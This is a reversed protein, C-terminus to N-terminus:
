GLGGMISAIMAMMADYGMMSNQSDLQAAGLGLQGETGYSGLNFENEALGAQHQWLALAQQQQEYAAQEALMAQLENRANEVSARYMYDQAIQDYDAEARRQVEQAKEVYPTSAVMGRMAPASKATMDAFGKDRREQIIPQYAEIAATPDVKGLDFEYAAWAEPSTYAWEPAEGPTFTGAGGAGIGLADMMASPNLNLNFSPDMGALQQGGVMISRIGAEPNVYGSFPDQTFTNYNLKDWLREGEAMDYPSMHFTEQTYPNMYSQGFPNDPNWGMGSWGGVQQGWQDAGETFQNWDWQGM